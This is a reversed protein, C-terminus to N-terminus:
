LLISEGSAKAIMGSDHDQKEKTEGDDGGNRKQRPRVDQQM